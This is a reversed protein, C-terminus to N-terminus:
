RPSDSWRTTQTRAASHADFQAAGLQGREAKRAAEIRLTEEDHAALAEAAAAHDAEAQPLTEATAKLTRAQEVARYELQVQGLDRGLLGAARRFREQDKPTFDTSDGRQLLERYVGTAANREEADQDAMAEILSKPTGM